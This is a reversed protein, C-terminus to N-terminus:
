RFATYAIGLFYVQGNVLQGDSQRSDTFIVPLGQVWGADTHVIDNGNGDTTLTTHASMAALGTELAQADSGSSVSDGLTYLTDFGFEAVETGQGSNAYLEDMSAIHQPASSNVVALNVDLLNIRSLEGSSYQGSNYVNALVFRVERRMSNWTPMGTNGVRTWTAIVIEYAMVVAPSAPQAFTSTNVPNLLYIHNGYVASQYYTPNYGFVYGVGGQTGADNQYNFTAQTNNTQTFRAFAHYGQSSVTAADQTPFASLYSPAYPSEINTFASLFDSTPSGPSTDAGTNNLETYNVYWGDPGTDGTGGGGTGSYDSNNLVKVGLVCNILLRLDPMPSPGINAASVYVTVPESSANTYSAAFPVNQFAVGAITQSTFNTPPATSADESLTLLLACPLGGAVINAALDGDANDNLVGTLTFGVPVDISWTVYANNGPLTFFFDDGDAIAGNFGNIVNSRMQPTPGGHDWSVSLSGGQMITSFDLAVYWEGAALQTSPVNLVYTGELEASSVPQYGGEVTSGSTYGDTWIITPTSLDDNSDPSQGRQVMLWGSDNFFTKGSDDVLEIRVNTANCPLEFNFYPDDTYNTNSQADLGSLNVVGGNTLRSIYSM